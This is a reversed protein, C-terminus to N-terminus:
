ELLCLFVCEVSVFICSCQAADSFFVISSITIKFISSYLFLLFTIIRLSDCLLNQTKNQIKKKNRNGLGILGKSSLIGQQQKWTRSLSLSLSLNLFPFSLYLQTAPFALHKSWVCKQKRNNQQASM